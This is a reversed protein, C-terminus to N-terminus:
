VGSVKDPGQENFQEKEYKVVTRFGSLRRLNGVRDINANTIFNL